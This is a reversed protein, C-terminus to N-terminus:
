NTVYKHIKIQKDTYKKFGKSKAIREWAPICNHWSKQNVLIKARMELAWVDNPDNQIITEIYFLAEAWNKENYEKNIRSALEPYPISSLDDEISSSIRM